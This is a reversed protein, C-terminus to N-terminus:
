QHIVPKLILNGQNVIRFFYMGKPESSLDISERILGLGELRNSYVMQGLSNFLQILTEGQCPGVELNVRGDTPNPFLLVKLGNDQPRTGSALVTVYIEDVSSCKIGDTVYVTYTTSQTPTAIPNALTSNNLTAAPEWRYFYTGSGGTSTPNDGLRCSQGSVITIDKGADAKLPLPQRVVITLEQGIVAVFVPSLLFILALFRKM